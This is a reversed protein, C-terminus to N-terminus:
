QEFLGLWPGPEFPRPILETDVLAGAASVSTVEQAAELDAHEGALLYVGRGAVGRGLRLGILSLPVTKFAQDLSRLSASLTDTEVFLLAYARPLQDREGALAPGLRPHCGSILAHDIVRDAGVALAADMALSVAEVGGSFLVLHRAGSFCRSSHLQVDAAKLLDDALRGGRALSSLEVCGLAEVSSADTPEILRM